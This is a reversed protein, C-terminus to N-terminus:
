EGAAARDMRSPMRCVEPYEDEVYARLADKWNRMRNIGLDSLRTNLLMESRPRPTPYDRHFFSSDVPRVDIDQRNCIEVIARAVDYRSGHGECVMHYTGYSNHQQLLEFLNMAFDHTYTPTGLKDDVAHLVTRGEIIQQLMKSVFKKDKRPGGGVMWGARIVYTRSNLERAYHEGDLKTRGYVMIPNPEDQETYFGDKKGDFVGATSLYVMTAGAAQSFEAVTAAGHANTAEAIDPNEECFELSTEAALHLVLDPQVREFYEEVKARDRIDLPELWPETVDKDTAVTGPFREKFYPYVAHGLM